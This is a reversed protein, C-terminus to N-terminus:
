EIGYCEMMTFWPGGPVKTSLSHSLNFVKWTGNAMPISSEIEVEGGLRINWNFLMNVEMGKSSLTPYGVMGTDKSIVPKDGSRAGTTPWIALTGRDITYKIGAARACQRVKNLTTGSFYPNALTVDVGNDEFSLELEFALGQMISTVSTAGKYSTADVPKVSAALGAYAIVNFAVDPAANYDGWADSITGFFVLQMGTENDGAAVSITNKVRIARNIAGITTLKNMLETPMGFVRINVMGMSEGGPNVADVIMRYGSLTVTDGVDEGFNGVGLTITLEILKETFSM